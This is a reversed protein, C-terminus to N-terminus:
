RNINAIEVMVNQYDQDITVTGPLEFTRRVPTISHWDDDDYDDHDSAPVPYAEVPDYRKSTYEFFEMEHRPRLYAASPRERLYGNPDNM